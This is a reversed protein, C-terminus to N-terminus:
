GTQGRRDFVGVGRELREREARRMETFEGKIERIDGRLGNEDDVGVCIFRLERVEDRLKGVDARLDERTTQMDAKVADELHRFHKHLGDERRKGKFHDSVKAVALIVGVVSATVVEPTIQDVIM